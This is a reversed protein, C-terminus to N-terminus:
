IRARSNSQVMFCSPVGALVVAFGEYLLRDWQFVYRGTRKVQWDAFLLERAIARIIYWLQYQVPFNVAVTGRAKTQGWRQFLYHYQKIACNIDFQQAPAIRGRFM